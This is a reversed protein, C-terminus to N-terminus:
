RWVDSLAVGKPNMLHKKGGWDKVNQKCAACFQHTVKVHATNLPPAAPKKRQADQKLFMLLGRHAPKLFGNRPTDDLDLAIWYKFVLRAADDGALALHEGWLPLERPQGYVFLLGGTRLVRVSENLLRGADETFAGNTSIAVVARSEGPLSVLAEGSATAM